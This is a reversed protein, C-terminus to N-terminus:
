YLTANTGSNQIVWSSGGNITRMILGNHGVIWGHDWDTFHVAYLPDTGYFQQDWTAGGDLSYLMTGYNGVAWG